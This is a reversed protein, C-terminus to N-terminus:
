STTGRSAYIADVRAAVFREFLLGVIGPLARASWAAFAYWRPVYTMFRNKRIAEIMASSVVEVPITWETGKRQPNKMFSPHNFFETEVRGPCVVHVGINFRKLEIRLIEAWAVLGHKAASYIGCPALAIRGAISAMACIHGGGSSIMHPLFERTVACAGGFNVKILRDIEEPDTEAFLEYVAYGANNILIDPSGHEDVYRSVASQVQQLSAIDCCYASVGPAIRELDIRSQDLKDRNNSLIAVRAGLRLFDSALQKGIGSSGGTIFVKKGSFKVPDRNM